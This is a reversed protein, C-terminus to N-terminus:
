GRLLQRGDPMVKANNEIIADKTVYIMGILPIEILCVETILQPNENIRSLDVVSMNDILYCKETKKLFVNKSIQEVVKGGEKILPVPAQFGGGTSVSVYYTKGVKLNIQQPGSNNPKFGQPMFGNSNHSPNQQIGAALRQQLLQNIDVEGNSVRPMGPIGQNVQPQEHPMPTGNMRNAYYKKQWDEM